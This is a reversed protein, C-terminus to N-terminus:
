KGFVERKYERLRSDSWLFFRADRKLSYTNPKKEIVMTYPQFYFSKGSTGIIAAEHHIHTKNEYVQNYQKWFQVDAQSPTVGGSPHTHFELWNWNGLSRATIEAAEALTSCNLKTSWEQHPKASENPFVMWSTIFNISPYRRLWLCSKITTRNLGKVTRGTMFLYGHIEHPNDCMRRFRRELDPSDFMLHQM